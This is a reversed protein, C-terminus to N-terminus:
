QAHTIGRKAGCDPSDHRSLTEANPCRRLFIGRRAAAPAAKMRREAYIEQSLIDSIYGPWLSFLRYRIRM